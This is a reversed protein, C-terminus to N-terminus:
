KKSEHKESAGRQLHIAWQRFGLQNEEEEEEEEYHKLICNKFQRIRM